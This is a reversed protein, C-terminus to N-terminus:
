KTISKLIWINKEHVELRGILLDETVPDDKESFVEISAKLSTVLSEHSKLLAAIMAKSREQASEGSVDVKVNTKPELYTYVEFSRIREAIEDLAKFADQYIEEFLAHLSVFQSGEVNWHFHHAAFYLAYTENLINELSKVANDSKQPASM